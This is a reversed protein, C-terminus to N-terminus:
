NMIKFLKDSAGFVNMVNAFVFNLIWFNILLGLLYFLFSSITGIKLEGKKYLENAVYLQLAMAGYLSIQTMFGFLGQWMFKKQGFKYVNDSKLNFKMVEEKENAFAKVVRINSISEDAISSM